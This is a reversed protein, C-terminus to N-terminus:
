WWENGNFSNMRVIAEAYSTGVAFRFGALSLNGLDWEDLINRFQEPLEHGAIQAVVASVEATQSAPAQVPIMGRFHRPFKEVQLSYKKYLQQQIDELQLLAM